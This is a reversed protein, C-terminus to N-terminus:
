AALGGFPELAAAVDAIEQRAVLGRRLAQMAAARLVDPAIREAACDSLTRRVSTVPVSGHWARDHEDIIAIHRVIGPPANRRKWTRPLTIHIKSPMIDSLEHLALATQHSFIGERKSWLWITVLEEENNDHEVSPYGHVLRYVGRHLRLLRGDKLHDQLLQPSFGAERAQGATFQGGQVSAFEHLRNWDPGRSRRSAAEEENEAPLCVIRYVGRHLRTIRGDSLYLQLLPPSFGAEKAQKTSFCGDQASALEHLWGWNPLKSRDTM